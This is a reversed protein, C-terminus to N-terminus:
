TPTRESIFLSRALGLWATLSTPRLALAARYSQIALKRRGQLRYYWATGLTSRYISDSLLPLLKQYTQKDLHQELNRLAHANGILMEAGSGSTNSGHRRYSVLTENQYLFPGQAAIRMWLDYDDAWHPQSADFGGALDFATRRLMVLSASLIFNGRILYELIQGSARPDYLAGTPSTVKGYEDIGRHDCYTALASAHYRLLAAQHELKSNDWIDDQDLFAVFEGRAVKVGNNRAIAPGSNRQDIIQIRDRYSKLIEMSSDKSGDNVAIVEVLPYTQNLASDICERLYPSGNYVPVIVSILSSIM